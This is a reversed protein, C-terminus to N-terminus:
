PVIRLNTPATPPTSGPGCATPNGDFRARAPLTNLKVAGTSDVWPWACSGFFAPKASVYLSSPITQAPRDWRVQQTFYDYNGDRITTSLVKPDGAANWDEPNYGLRWMPVGGNDEGWPLTDEYQYGTYPSPNMAPAGIVNGIFTYWWHGEMLGIGRVNDQDVLSLGLSRRKTTLHNRFGVIYVANGWTNDGDFNWAQNGEFLEHHPTTMHSANLGVEVWLNNGGIRGDDMYNYAIVNGGGSARMVMVKNFNIVVNNEFLNNSSAKGIDIGYGDGGPSPNQAISFTSDRVVSQSTYFMAVMGGLSNNGEVNKLWCYGCGNMLFSGYCNLASCNKNQFTLNEVGASTVFPESFRTLQATRATEFNAHFPTVFTVTNGSISAIEMIQTMPRNSRTYWLQCDGSCTPHWKSINTDTTADILVFQGSSLGTTSAVTVTTNGRIGNSTFNTSGGSPDPDSGIVLGNWGAVASKLIRTAGTCLRGTATTVCPAAGRLTVNSKMNISGTILFDGASLQVVQGSPCASIASNIGGAANTSGNGYTSANVTTCVTTRTPIGSPIGPNWVTVRDAPIISTNVAASVGAPFLVFWGCSLTVAASVRLTTRLSCGM